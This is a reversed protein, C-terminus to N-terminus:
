AKFHAAKVHRRVHDRKTIQGNSCTTGAAVSQWVVKGNNCLGFQNPGNCVVAGNFSCTSGGSTSGSPTAGSPAAVGANSSPTMSAYSSAASSVSVAASSSASAAASSPASTQISIVSPATASNGIEGGGASSSSNPASSSAAATTAASASSPASVPTVAGAAPAVSNAGDNVVKSQYGSVGATQSAAAAACGSGSATVLATTAITMVFEGPYPIIVDAEPIQESSSTCSGSPLNIIYWNPLSDYYAKGNDDGGTVTIPACNQYIERNGVKNYWTWSLTAKGNPFGKPIEFTWPHSGGATSTTPCGGEFVQIIKWESKTTPELDMTVALQCTGGSHSASGTFNLEIPDGVEFNNMATIDYVGPRQKCPFDSGSSGPAVDELPSNNLTSVGFPVPHVMILHANAGFALLLASLFFM